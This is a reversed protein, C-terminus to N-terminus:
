PDQTSPVLFFWFPEEAAKLARRAAILVKGAETHHYLWSEAARAAPVHDSLAAAAEEYYSTIDRSWQLPHGALGVEKWPTGDAIALFAELGRPVDEPQLARGVLTRGSQEASRRYAKILGRAEDVAPPASTNERPPLRCVLPEETSDHIIEPFDRLVPGETEELLEFAANLVGRQFAADRPKGLPRGLPFECFLARPPELQEANERVSALVVTSLGCQEFVHALTSM